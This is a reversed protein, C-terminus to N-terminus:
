WIKEGRRPVFEGTIRRQESEHRFKRQLLNGPEDQVRRLWREHRDAIEREEPTLDSEEASEESPVVGEDSSGPRQEESTAQQDEGSQSAHEETASEPEETPQQSQQSQMEEQNHSSGSQQQEDMGEASQQRNEGSSSQPPPQQALLNVVLQRNFAADEHDPHLRLVEDYAEVAGELQGQQALANGLNYKATADEGEAFLVAAGEMDGARYRAVANWQPDEFLQGALEPDDAQLAEIGQQDKTQWLDDIWGAQLQPGIVIAVAVLAGRRFSLGIIVVLPIVLWYGLDHWDDFQREEIRETESLNLPALVRAIDSEDVALNTYSGGALATATRLRDSDLQAIIPSNDAARLVREQGSQDIFPIVDGADTGIGIVFIPFEGNLREEIENIREVGDSILLIRANKSNVNRLVEVALDMARGVNSGLVPMIEPSLASLLNLITNADDSLPNVIFADGAYVVLATSGEDRLRLLDTIKHKAAEVRSPKVDRSLMSLSLDLVIVLDDTTQEVPQPTRNWTPGALAISGLFLAVAASMAWLRLAGPSGESVLADHLRDDIVGRWRSATRRMRSFAIFLLPVVLIALLWWPRLFHFNSIAERM